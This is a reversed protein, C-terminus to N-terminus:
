EGGQREKWDSLKPTLLETLKWRERLLGDVLGHLYAVARSKPLGDRGEQAGEHGTYWTHFYCGAWPLDPSMEGRSTPIVSDM